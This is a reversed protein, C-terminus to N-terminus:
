TRASCPRGTWRRSGRAARPRARMATARWVGANPSCDGATRATSEVLAQTVQTATLHPFRSLVLAAVGAVIGSATSTSSITGHGDPLSATILSVGPATLAVYSRRGSFSALKGDRGIAGVALVGPYAAPYNVIAPGQGDDGAPAVLVIGKGLAYAIAAREAASGGAAAPDGKTTLGLTGPDLPLDIIRSGHDAAYRIGDAIADPLRRSVAQDSALPDNFELTVRVSLIKAAPAVGVLGPDRQRAAIIGAVATGEFGWYPNGPRRGSGTYDPGTIVSGALGPYSADVGTGLVAVTIGSGESKQWAQTVGLGGLWWEQGRVSNAAGAPAAATIAPAFVLVGVVTLM